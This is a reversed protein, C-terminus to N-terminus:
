REGEGSKDAPIRPRPITVSAPLGGAVVQTCAGRPRRDGAEPPVPLRVEIQPPEGFWEGQWSVRVDDDRPEIEVTVAGAPTATPGFRLPRGPKLWRGPIGSALVLRDTEERVFMNRVMMLWEAAAWGHQGDGMCGGGTRPHVAEPWQGTPSALRAVTEVLRFFRPNGARLLVQALHLTLYANLGSHIMGQFFAGKVTCNDLLYAATALLRRDAAPLLMLPYGAALSGVAGADMRRYPSAPIGDHRRVHHSKRLSHEIAAMLDDAEADFEDAADPDNWRRCMSAAKRLGAVSWFDDWYYYDNNGLHEASFGAPLLGACLEGGSRSLRKRAIWRAGRVVPRHWRPDPATGTLEGFRGLIWLVEGNSDWEGSQSHFFGTPRQRHFFRAICRRARDQMGACVMAHLMLAADRFWFRKYTYVGPYVDDPSLLILTRVAADYLFQFWPDPLRAACTGAVADPWPQLAVPPKCTKDRTLDADAAVTVSGGDLRFIAAASAQGVDCSAGDAPPRELLRLHVDGDRYRSTAHRDPPRDFSVCQEGDIRWTRRAGELRIEHIFSVGEPNFPRLVIALWGPGHSRASFLMRCLPKGDAIIMKVTSALVLGDHETTTKVALTDQEIDLAQEASAAESPLLQEGSDALVWADLSWGDFFPTVLGRPDVIPYSSCGPLGVATWNRHTLNVHSVSFARPLFSDDNPDFQRQVWYPWVWDPNYQIAKTNLLGRAHFLVGARLLEAPTGVESAQGFRELRAMLNIPDLFGHSRALKRVLYRWPLWRFLM